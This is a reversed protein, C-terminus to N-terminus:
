ATGERKARRQASESRKKKWWKRFRAWRNLAWLTMRGVPRRLFPVDQAILLLGIPLFEIGLVPLFWLFSAGICLIGLPLRVARAQPRRLWCIARTVFDPAERELEDFAKELEDHHNASSARAKARRSKM